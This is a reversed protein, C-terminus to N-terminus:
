NLEKIYKDWLSIAQERCANWGVGIYGDLVRKTEDVINRDFDRANEDEEPVTMEKARELIRKDHAKLWNIQKELFSEVVHEGFEEDFMEMETKQTM